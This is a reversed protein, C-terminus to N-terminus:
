ARWCCSTAGLIRADSVRRQVGRRHCRGGGAAACVEARPGGALCSSQRGAAGAAWGPADAPPSFPAPALAPQPSQRHWGPHSHAARHAPELRDRGTGAAVRHPSHPQRGRLAPQGTGGGRCGGRSPYRQPTWPRPQWTGARRRRRQSLRGAHPPRPAPDSGAARRGPRHAGPIGFRLQARPTENTRTPEIDCGEPSPCKRQVTLQPRFRLVVCM